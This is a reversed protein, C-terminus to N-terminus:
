KSGQAGSFTPTTAPVPTTVDVSAATIGGDEQKVGRVRARDGPKLDSFGILAGERRIKAGAPVDIVSGSLAVRRAGAAVSDIQGDADTVNDSGTRQQHDLAAATGGVTVSIEMRDSAAVIGLFLSADIGPGAFHLVVDSPAVGTLRFTGHSDVVASLRTGLVSVTIGPAVESARLTQGSGTSAASVVGTITAGTVKPAPAAGATTSRSGFAVGLIFLVIQGIILFNGLRETRKMM